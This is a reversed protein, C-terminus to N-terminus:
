SKHSHVALITDPWSRVKESSEPVRTSNPAGGMEYMEYLELRESQRSFEDPKSTETTEVLMRVQVAVSLRNWAVSLVAPAAYVTLLM